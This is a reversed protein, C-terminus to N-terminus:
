QACGAKMSPKSASALAKPNVASLSDGVTCDIAQATPETQLTHLLPKLKRWVNQAVIRQGEATPHIGDDQNLSDIGGVGELLFPVLSVNKTDALTPYIQRFQETYEHGLNPPLQMGTLLIRADPYRIRTTDIIAALNKRTVEPKIGRLGDNGGLELILVDIPQRLLWDIRRLGGASTEGSLGANIVNYNWGLSDIKQQLLAPFAKGQSLGYGAAISNGLVLVAQEGTVANNSLTDGPAAAVVTDPPSEVAANTTESSECAALLLVSLLIAPYLRRTIM